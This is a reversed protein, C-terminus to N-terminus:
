RGLVWMTLTSYVFACISNWHWLLFITAFGNKCLELFLFYFFPLHLPIVYNFNMQLSNFCRFFGVVNVIFVHM